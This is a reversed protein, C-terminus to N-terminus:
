FQVMVVMMDCYVKQFMKRSFVLWVLSSMGFVHELIVPGKMVIFIAKARILYPM